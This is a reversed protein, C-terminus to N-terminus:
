TSACAGPRAFPAAPHVCAGSGTFIRASHFHRCSMHPKKRKKAERKGNGIKYENEDKNVIGSSSENGDGSGDRDGDQKGGFTEM